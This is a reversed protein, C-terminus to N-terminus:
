IETFDIAQVWAPFNQGSRRRELQVTTDNIFRASFMPRPYATGTGNQGNTVLAMRETANSFDDVTQNITLDNSNGDAKFRYDVLLNDHTLAYVEFNKNDNYECGIAISSETTNQNVGDGLTILVAEGADGIGNNDTWGTGWVWTNDRNVASIVGTNYEGTDDVGDGGNTGAVNVRQVNWNDGWELVMVTSTATSLSAGGGDRTWNIQNTGSPYIRVHCVKTNNQNGEATECGSGNYGGMLMVQSINSWTASAINGSTGAGSHSVDKVDVLQFGDSDCNSLCEVVTVVGTWSGSSGSAGRSLGIQNSAGSTTLDGSGFPDSVLRVYTDAPGYNGNGNGDGDSGQVIVFYDETLNEDLTVTYTTGTFGSSIYYERVRLNPGISQEWFTLYTSITISKNRSPTFDWSVQSDVKYTDNDIETIVIERTYKDITDSSGSFAWSGGGSDLGYTGISIDNWDERKISRVAEIGEEALLTAKVEEDSLRNLAYSHLVTTIGSVGIILFLGVAVITEILGFGNPQKKIAINIM